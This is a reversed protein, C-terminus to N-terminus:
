EGRGVNNASEDDIRTTIFTEAYPLTEIWECFVRWQPLRHNRRQIYIRRLTQYSFMWIRKQMTGETLKEKMEVLDEEAMGRGQIHMTSESGLREAGIRYTDMEQWWYRPAVIECWVQVGRLVKAHEDGNHILSSLLKADKDDLSFRSVSKSESGRQTYIQWGYSRCEKGYPLRLAEMASVFGAVEITRVKFQEVSEYM